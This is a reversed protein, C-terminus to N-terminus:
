LSRKKKLAMMKDFAALKAANKTGYKRQSFTNEGTAKHTLCGGWSGDVNKFVSVIFGDVDLYDNGKVSVKWKRILWRRKRNSANRLSKERERPANYDEEMHGACVCGVGLIEAYDPHKMYHVYRIEQRECMKCVGSLEELDDFDVCAWGKHPVGPESWKGHSTTM